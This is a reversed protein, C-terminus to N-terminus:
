RTAPAGLHYSLTKELEEPWGSPRNIDIPTEGWRYRCEPKQAPGGTWTLMHLNAQTLEGEIYRGDPHFRGTRGDDCTVVVSGDSQLEFTQKFSAYRYKRLAPKDGNETM